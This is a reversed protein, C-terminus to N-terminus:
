ARLDRPGAPQRRHHCFGRDLGTALLCGACFAAAVAFCLVLDMSGFGKATRWNDGYDPEPILFAVSSVVLLPAAMIWFPHLWWIASRPESARSMSESSSM